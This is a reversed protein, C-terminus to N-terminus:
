VPWGDHGFALAWGQCNLLARLAARALRSPQAALAEHGAHEVASTAFGSRGLRHGELYTGELQALQEHPALREEVERNAVGLRQWHDNLVLLKVGHALVDHM